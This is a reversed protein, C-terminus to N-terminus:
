NRAAAALASQALRLGGPNSAKGAAGQRPYVYLQDSVVTAKWGEAAATTGPLAPSLIFARYFALDDGLLGSINFCLENDGMRWVDVELSDMKHETKPLKQFATIINSAGVFLRSKGYKTLLNRAHRSFDNVGKSPTSLSFHSTPTYGNLLHLRDNDFLTFFKLGFSQLIEAVAAPVHSPQVPPLLQDAAPALPVGDLNAVTAIYKRVKGELVARDSALPNGAVFLTTLGKLCRLHNLDDLSKLENNALSLAELATCKDFVSSLQTLSVIKNSSLDLRAISSCNEHIVISVADWITPTIVGSPCLNLVIPDQCLSSLVLTNEAQNFRQGLVEGLAHMVEPKLNPRMNSPRNHAITITVPKGKILLKKSLRILNNLARSNEAAFTFAMATKTVAYETVTFNEGSQTQLALLMEDKGVNAPNSVQPSPRGGLRQDPHKNLIACPTPNNAVRNPLVTDTQPASPLSCACAASGGRHVASAQQHPPLQTYLHVFGSPTPGSDRAKLPERSSLVVASPSAAAASVGRKQRMRFRRSSRSSNSDARRSRSSRAAVSNEAALSSQQTWPLPQQLRQKSHM